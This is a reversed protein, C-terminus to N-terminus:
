AGLPLVQQADPQGAREIYDPDPLDHARALVQAIYDGLPLGAEEALAAYQQHHDRPM